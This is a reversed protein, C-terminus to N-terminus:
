LGYVYLTNHHRVVKMKASEDIFIERSDDTPIQKYRTTTTTPDQRDICSRFKAYVINKANLVRIIEDKRDCSFENGVLCIFRLKPCKEMLGEVDLDFFSNDSLHLEELQPMEDVFSFDTLQNNHLWIKSLEKNNKFLNEGITTLKNRDLDISRLKKNHDFVGLPLTELRNGSLYLVILHKCKEFANVEVSVLGVGEARMNEINSLSECVYNTLTEVQSDRFQFWKIEHAKKGNLDLNFSKMISTQNLNSVSCTQSSISLFWIGELDGCKYTPIRGLGEQIVFFCLVACFFIRTM